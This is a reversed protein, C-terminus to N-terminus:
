SVQISVEGRHRGYYSTGSVSPYHLGQFIVTQIQIRVEASVLLQYFERNEWIYFIPISIEVDRGGEINKPGLSRTCIAARADCTLVSM